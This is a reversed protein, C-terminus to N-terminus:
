SEQSAPGFVSPIGGKRLLDGVHSTVGVRGLVRVGAGKSKAISIIARLADLGARPDFDLWVNADGPSIMAPSVATDVRHLQLVWCRRGDHAWEIRVPGIKMCLESATRRVERVVSKPLRVPSAAGLMFDVGSGPVGEVLDDQGRVPITAGSYEADVFEQALVSALYENLPDEEAMLRYPDTWRPTTSFRGPQQERPATRLWWEGTGTPVGFSFPAVRRSIVQTLPVNLGYADALMLGYPKDGVLRSFGNPWAVQAELHFEGVDEVEWVCVHDGRHGVRGPHVSFEVRASEIDPLEVSCSYVTSLIEQALSSPLQAAMGTEVVRPTSDPAFEALGGLVVGSVGGDHIDITENVITHLGRSAYEQLKAIVVAVQGLGYDFFSDKSEGTSFTRINVTNDRSRELLAAVLSPADIPAPMEGRLVVHRPRLLLDFSAFQAVNSRQSIAYLRDDKLDALVIREGSERIALDLTEAACAIERSPMGAERLDQEARHLRNAAARLDLPKINHDMLTLGRACAVSFELACGTSHEWGRAFVVAEAFREVVEVWFRHYDAQEWGHRDFETPDIIQVHPFAARIKKRLPDVAAINRAIVEGRLRLDMAGDTPAGESARARRWALYRPGTTIPTSLYVVSGAAAVGELRELEGLAGPPLPRTLLESVASPRTSPADTSPEPRTQRAM